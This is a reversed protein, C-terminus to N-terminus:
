PQLDKDLQDANARDQESVQYGCVSLAKAYPGEVYERYADAAADAALYLQFNLINAAEAEPSNAGYERRAMEWMGKNAKYSAAARKAQDYLITKQTDLYIKSMPCTGALVSGPSAVPPAAPAPIAAGAPTPPKMAPGIPNLPTKPLDFTVGPLDVPEFPDIPFPPLEPIVPVAPPAPQAAPRPGPMGMAPLPMEAHAALSSILAILCMTLKM